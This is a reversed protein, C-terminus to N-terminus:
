SETDEETNESDNELDDPYVFTGIKEGTAEDIIHLTTKVDDGSKGDFVNYYMSAFSLGLLGFADFSNEYSKLNVKVDFETFDKNYSIEKFSTFDEGNVLEDISSTLSEEMEKLMKKHTSKSMKYYVSGDENIKVDKVGNEKAATKIEEATQDEFFQAPLTLEVDLLGKDVELSQ